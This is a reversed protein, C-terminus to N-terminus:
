NSNTTRSDESNTMLNTNSCFHQLQVDKKEKKKTATSTKWNGGLVDKNLYLDLDLDVNHIIEMRHKHTHTSSTADIHTNHTYTGYINIYNHTNLTHDAYIIKQEKTREMTLSFKTLVIDIKLLRFYRVSLGNATMEYTTSM